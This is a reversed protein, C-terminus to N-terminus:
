RLGAQRKINNETGKPLDKNHFPITVKGSKTPHVYNKHSGEQNKFIWGCSNTKGNRKTENAYHKGGQVTEITDYFIYLTLVCVFSVYLFLAALVM